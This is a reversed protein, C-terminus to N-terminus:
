GPRKGEEVYEAITTLSAVVASVPDNALGQVQECFFLIAPLTRAKITQIISPL